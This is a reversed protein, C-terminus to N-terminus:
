CLRSQFVCQGHYHYRHGRGVIIPSIVMGRKECDRLYQLDQYRRIFHVFRRNPSQEFGGNQWWYVIHNYAKSVNAVSRRWWSVIMDLLRFHLSKEEAHPPKSMRATRRPNAVQRFDSHAVLNVRATSRYVVNFRLVAM